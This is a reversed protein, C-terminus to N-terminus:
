IKQLRRMSEGKLDIQHAKHIIRDLLADAITDDNILQHWKDIPIQSSIITSSRGYKYDIIEMLAKKLLQTIGTLGFDDLILLHCDQLRKLWKAYTGKLMAMDIETALDAMTSYIVKHHMDCAKTGICQAIFSKGTGTAGTIIINQQHAMFGLQLLNLMTQKEIGRSANYDIDVLNAVQRFKAQQRLKKTRANVRYEWQAQVLVDIYDITSYQNIQQSQCDAELVSAMGSLSLERMKTTTTQYM